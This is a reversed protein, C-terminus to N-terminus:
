PTRRILRALGLAALHACGVLTARGESELRM